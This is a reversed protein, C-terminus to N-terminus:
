SSLKFGKKGYNVGLFIFGIFKWFEQRTFNPVLRLRKNGGYMFIRNKMGAMKNM